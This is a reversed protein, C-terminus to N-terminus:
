DVSKTYIYEGTAILTFPIVSSNDWTPASALPSGDSERELLFNELALVTKYEQIFGKYGLDGGSSNVVYTDTGEITVYNEQLFPENNQSNPITSDSNSLNIRTEELVVPPILTFGDRLFFTSGNNGKVTLYPVPVNKINNSM